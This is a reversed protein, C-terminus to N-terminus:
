KWIDSMQFSTPIKSDQENAEGVFCAAERCMAAPVGEITEAGRTM